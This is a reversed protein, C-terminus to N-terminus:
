RYNILLVRAPEIPERVVSGALQDHTGNGYIDISIKM